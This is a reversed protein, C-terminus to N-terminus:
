CSAPSAEGSSSRGALTNFYQLQLNLTQSCVPCHEHLLHLDAAAMTDKIMGFTIATSEKQPTKSDFTTRQNIGETTSSPITLM